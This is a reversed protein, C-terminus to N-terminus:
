GIFICILEEIHVIKKESCKGWTKVKIKFRQDALSDKLVFFFFIYCMRVKYHGFNNVKHELCFHVGLIQSM